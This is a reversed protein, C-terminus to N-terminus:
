AVTASRQWSPTISHLAVAPIPTGSETEGQMPAVHGKMMKSDASMSLATSSTISVAKLFFLSTVYAFLHSTGNQWVVTDKVTREKERGEPGSPATHAPSCQPCHQSGDWAGYPLSSTHPGACHHLCPGPPHQWGLLEAAPPWPLDSGGIKAKKIDKTMSPWEWMGQIEQNHLAAHYADHGRLTGTSRGTLLPLAISLVTPSAIWSVSIKRMISCWGTCMRNIMEISSSYYFQLFEQLVPYFM